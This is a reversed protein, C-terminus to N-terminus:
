QRLLVFIVMGFLCWVVISNLNVDVTHWEQFPGQDISSWELIEGTEAGITATWFSTARFNELSVGTVDLLVCRNNLPPPAVFFISRNQLQFRMSKLHVELFSLNSLNSLKGRKQQPDPSKKGGLIEHQALFIRFDCSWFVLGRLGTESQCICWTFRGPLLRDPPPIVWFTSPKRITYPIGIGVNVM